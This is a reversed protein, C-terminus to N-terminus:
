KCFCTSLRHNVTVAIGMRRHSDRSTMNINPQQWTAAAALRYGVPRCIDAICNTATNRFM